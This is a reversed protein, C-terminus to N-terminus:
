DDGSFLSAGAPFEFTPNGDYGIEGPSAYAPLVGTDHKYRRVEGVAMDTSILVNNNFSPSLATSPDAASPNDAADSDIEEVFLYM